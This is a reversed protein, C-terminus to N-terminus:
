ERKAREDLSPDYGWPPVAEAKRTSTRFESSSLDLPWGPEASKKVAGAAASTAANGRLAAVTTAVRALVKHLDELKYAAGAEAAAATTAGMSVERDSEDAAATTDEDFIELQVTESASDIFSQKAAEVTRALARLRRVAGDPEDSAAKRVQDLSYALVEEATLPESTPRAPTKRVVRQIADTMKDMSTTNM